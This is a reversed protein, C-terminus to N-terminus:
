NLKCANNKRLSILTIDDDQAGFNTFEYFYGVLKHILEMSHLDKQKHVEEVLREVGLMDKGQEPFAEILGDTYFLVFDNECLTITQNEFFQNKFIGIIPGTSTLLEVNDSETKYFLAPPHGGSAYQLEGTKYNLQAVIMTAFFYLEAIDRSLNDNVETLIEAPSKGSKSSIKLLTRIENGIYSSAVGHGSVDCIVFQYIDPAILYGDFFDGSLDAAPLYCSAIDYGEIQDFKPLLSVQIKRVRAIESRYSDIQLDITQHIKVSEVMIGFFDSYLSIISKEDNTFPTDKELIIYGHRRNELTIANICCYLKKGSALKLQLTSTKYKKSTFFTLKRSLKSYDIYETNDSFIHRAVSKIGDDSEAILEIYGVEFIERFDVISDFLKDINKYNISKQVFRNLRYLRRNFKFHYQYSKTIVNQYRLMKAYNSIKSEIEHSYFPKRAYEDAGAAYGAEIVSSSESSTLLFIIRKNKRQLRLEKCIELVDVTVIDTDLIVIHPQFHENITLFEQYDSVGRFEYPETLIQALGDLVSKDEDYALIRIVIDSTDIDISDFISM